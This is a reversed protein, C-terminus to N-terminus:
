AVAGSESDDGSALLLSEVHGKAKKLSSLQSEMEANRKVLDETETVLKTRLTTVEVELVDHKSQLATLTSKAQQYKSDKEAADDQSSKAVTELRKNKSQM